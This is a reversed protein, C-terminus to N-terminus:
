IELKQGNQNSITAVKLTVVVPVEEEVGIVVTSVMVLGISM